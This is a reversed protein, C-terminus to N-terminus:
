ASVRNFDPPVGDGQVPVSFSEIVVSSRGRSTSSAPDTAIFLQFCAFLLRSYLLQVLLGLLSVLKAVMYWNDCSVSDPHALFSDLAYLM